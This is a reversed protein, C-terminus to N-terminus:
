RRTQLVADMANGFIAYRSRGASKAHYLAIDAKRTLETREAGHAPAFAVGISVGSFVQHGDVEFPRELTEVIRQCLTEVERAQRLKPMIVIFEDGGIRAVTDGRGTLAKLREAFERIVMDGVPHGLTDNVHKFRDLDLYLVAVRAGAERVARLADDLRQDFLARNPLGTLPDHLALFQMRAESAKLKKS